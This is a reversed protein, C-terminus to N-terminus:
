SVGPIQPNMIYHMDVIRRFIKELDQPDIMGDMM